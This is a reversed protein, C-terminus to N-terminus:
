IQYLCRFVLLFLLILVENRPKKSCSAHHSMNRGMSHIHRKMKRYPTYKNISSKEQVLDMNKASELGNNIAYEPLKDVDYIASLVTEDNNHM